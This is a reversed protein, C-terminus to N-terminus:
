RKKNLINDIKLRIKEIKESILNNLVSKCKFVFMNVKNEDKFFIEELYYQIKIRKEKILIKNKLSSDM